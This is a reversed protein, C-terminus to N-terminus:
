KKEGRRIVRQGTRKAIKRDKGPKGSSGRPRTHPVPLGRPAAESNLGPVM